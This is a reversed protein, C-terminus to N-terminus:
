HSKHKAPNSLIFTTKVAPLPAVTSLQFSLFHRSPFSTSRNCVNISTSSSTSAYEATSFEGMLEPIMDTKTRTSLQQMPWCAHPACAGNSFLLTLYSTLFISIQQENPRDYFLLEVCHMAHEASDVDGRTSSLTIRSSIRSTMMLQDPNLRLNAVVRILSFSASALRPSCRLSCGTTIALLLESFPLSFDM